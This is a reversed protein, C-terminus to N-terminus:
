KALTVLPQAATVVEVPVGYQESFVRSTAKGRSWKCEYAQLHEGEKIVLDVESGSRSRWFFLEYRLGTLLNQKAVEAIVWNEWLRGIDVRLPNLNFDNLLANRIGTDWFFIKHNKAIEKRLNTSFAPLRFIVFTQELLEMYRDVTNRAIGLNLSLENVSVEAGIQYALLQLLKRILGPTKVLGLQLVDKFLYDAALNSLLREKNASTVVEPYSGCVLAQLLLAQVQPAFQEQLLETTFVPSYWTQAALIEQFILPPLWLKENRGTL